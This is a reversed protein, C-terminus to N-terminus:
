DYYLLWAILLHHQKCFIKFVEALELDEFFFFFTAASFATESSVGGFNTSCYGWVLCTFSRKVFEVVEYNKTRGFLAMITSLFSFCHYRNASFRCCLYGEVQRGAGELLICRIISIKKCVQEAKWANRLNHNWGRNSILILQICSSSNGWVSSRKEYTKLLADIKVRKNSVTVQLTVEM